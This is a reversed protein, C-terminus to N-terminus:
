RAGEIVAARGDKLEDFRMSLVTDNASLGEAIQVTKGDQARAGLKVYSRKLKGDKILWIIQQGNEAKVATTPLSLVTAQSNPGSQLARANAFQGPSLPGPNDIRVVVPIAKSGAEAVPGIRVLTGQFTTLLGDITLSVTQGIRLESQWHPPVHGIMELTQTQVITVIAQEVSLKELPLANRKSVVGSIPAILATEKLTLTVGTKQMQAASLAARASDVQARSNDLALPSIFGKDALGKNADYQRQANALAVQAVEVQAQRESIRTNLDTTDMVGLATGAKVTDGEQVYLKLLTGPAKSRVTASQAAFLSGSWEYQLNPNTAVPKTIEQATFVLPGTEKDKKNKGAEKTESTKAKQQQFYWTATGAASIIVTALIVILTTKKM